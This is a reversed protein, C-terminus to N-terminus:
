RSWVTKAIEPKLLSAIVSLPIDVTQEGFVYAAVQYNNFLIAIGQKTFYWVQYNKEIPSTGEKIWQEDSIKKATIAKNSVIALPKLYNSGSVFLDSLNVPRGNIFNEIIINNSPHAAGRHYISINFRVSLANKSKYPVAYTINLGTKGPANAPTSADQSLDKMFSNQTAEIFNKIDANVTASEFGQPYKIDLIYNNTEKKIVVPTIAQAVVVNWLLGLSLATKLLFRM